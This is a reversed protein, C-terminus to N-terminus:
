SLTTYTSVEFFHLYKTCFVLANHHWIRNLRLILWFSELPPSISPSRYLVAVGIAVEVDTVEIPVSVLPDPVVVPEVIVPVSVIGSRRKCVEENRRQRYPPPTKNQFNDAGVAL